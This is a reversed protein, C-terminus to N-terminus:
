VVGAAGDIICDGTCNICCGVAGDIGCGAAGDIACGAAGGVGCPTPCATESGSPPRCWSPARRDCM